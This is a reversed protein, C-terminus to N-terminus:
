SRFITSYHLLPTISYILLQTCLLPTCLLQQLKEMGTRKQPPFYSTEGVGETGERAPPSVRKTSRSATESVVFSEACWLVNRERQLEVIM